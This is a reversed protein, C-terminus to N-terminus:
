IKVQVRSKLTKLKSKLIILNRIYDITDPLLNVTSKKEERRRFLVPVQEIKLNELHARVCIETDWFWHKSKVKKVLPLIRSRRFFKYGAETDEIPCAFLTKVFLAYIKSALFRPFGRPGEGDYFRKGVVLENGSQIEKIFLPIYRESVELDVDLYGCIEGRAAKLGDSVSKGRGENRLHYIASINKYKKTFKEVSKKTDDISKDEVFIIEYSKRLKKLEHMIKEVSKGFTPGENFTPIIISIEVKGM